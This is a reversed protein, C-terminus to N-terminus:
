YDLLVLFVLFDPHALQKKQAEGSLAQNSSYSSSLILSNSKERKM